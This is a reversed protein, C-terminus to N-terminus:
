RKVQPSVTHKPLRYSTYEPTLNCCEYDFDNIASAIIPITTYYYYSYYNHPLTTGGVGCDNTLQM